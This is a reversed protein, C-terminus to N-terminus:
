KFKFLPFPLKFLPPVAWPSSPSSSAWNHAMSHSFLPSVIIIPPPHLIVSRCQQWVLWWCHYRKIRLIRQVYKWSIISFHMRFQSDKCLHFIYELMCKKSKWLVTLCSTSQMVHHNHFYTSLGTVSWLKLFRLAELHLTSKSEYLAILSVEQNTYPYLFINIGRLLGRCAVHFCTWDWM